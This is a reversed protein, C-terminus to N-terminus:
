FRPDEDYHLWGERVARKHQSRQNDNNAVEPLIRSSVTAEEPPVYYYSDEGPSTIDESMDTLFSCLSRAQLEQKSQLGLHRSRIRRWHVGANMTFEIDGRATRWSEVASM